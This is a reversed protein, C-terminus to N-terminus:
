KGVFYPQAWVKDKLYHKTQAVYREGAAVHWRGAAWYGVSGWFDGKTYRRGNGSVTNLWQQKGDFYSRIIAGYYDANMATDNKFLGCVTKGECHYPERVQLLGFASGENGVFSMVWWTEVAAEARMFNPSLGWKAAAWQIIQDTTGRYHGTVWKAYPNATNQKRFLRLQRQSPIRHNAAHNQPRPEWHGHVHKAAARDSRPHSGLKARVMGTRDAHAAVPVALAVVLACLALLSLRVGVDHRFVPEPV